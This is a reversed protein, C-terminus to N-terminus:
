KANIEKMKCEHKQKTNMDMSNLKMDKSKSSGLDPM